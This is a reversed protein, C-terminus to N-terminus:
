LLLTQYNVSDRINRSSGRFRHLDQKRWANAHIIAHFNTRALQKLMGYPRPKM